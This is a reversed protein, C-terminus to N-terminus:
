CMISLQDTAIITGLLQNKNLKQKANKPRSEVHKQIHISCRKLKVVCSRLKVSLKHWYEELISGLSPCFLLLSENM